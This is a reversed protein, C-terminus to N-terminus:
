DFQQALERIRPWGQPNRTVEEPANLTSFSGNALAEAVAANVDPDAAGLIYPGPTCIMDIYKNNSM